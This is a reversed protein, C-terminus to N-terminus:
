CAFYLKLLQVRRKVFRLLHHGIRVQRLRLLAFHEVGEFLVRALQVGGVVRRRRPM